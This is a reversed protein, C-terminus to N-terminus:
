MNLNKIEYFNSFKDDFSYKSYDKLKVVPQTQVGSSPVNTSCHKANPTKTHVSLATFHSFVFLSAHIIKVVGHSMLERKNVNYLKIM